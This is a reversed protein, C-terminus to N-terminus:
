ISMFKENLDTYDCIVTVAGTTTAGTLAFQVDLTDAATYKYGTTASAYVTGATAKADVASIFRTTSGADGVSVTATTVSDFATDIRVRVAKVFADKPLDFMEYATATLLTTAGDGIDTYSITASKTKTAGIRNNTGYNTISVAM